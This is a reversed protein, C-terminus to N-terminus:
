ETAEGDSEVESDQDDAQDTKASLAKQENEMAETQAREEALMENKEVIWQERLAESEGASNTDKHISATQRATFIASDMYPEVQEDAWLRYTKANLLEAQSIWNFDNAYKNILDTITWISAKYEGKAQQICAQLYLQGAPSVVQELLAEALEIDQKALAVRLHISRGKDALDDDGSQIFVDAAKGAEDYQQSQFYSEMLMLFVNRFNNNINMYPWYADLSNDLGREVDSILHKYDAKGYVSSIASLDVSGMFELYAIKDSPGVMNKPNRNLQFIVKGDKANQLFVNASGRGVITMKAPVGEQDAGQVCVTLSSAVWAISILKKM